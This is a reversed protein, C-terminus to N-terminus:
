WQVNSFLGYECVRANGSSSINIRFNRDAGQAPINLSVTHTNYVTTSYQKIFTGSTNFVGITMVAYHFQDWLALMYM